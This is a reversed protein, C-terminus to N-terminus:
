SPEKVLDYVRSRSLGAAEAIDAVTTGRPAERHAKRIAAHFARQAEEVAERARRVQELEESM